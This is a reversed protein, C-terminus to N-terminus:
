SNEKKKLKNIKLFFQQKNKEKPQTLQTLHDPLPLHSADPPSSLSMM